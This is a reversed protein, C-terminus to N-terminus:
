LWGEASGEIVFKGVEIGDSDGDILLAGRLRGEVRGEIV